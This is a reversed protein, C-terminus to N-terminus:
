QWAPRVGPRVPPLDARRRIRPKALEEVRTTVPPPRPTRPVQAYGKPKAPVPRAPAARYAPVPQRAAPRRRNLSTRMARQIKSVSATLDPKEKISAYARPAAHPVAQVRAPNAPPPAVRDMPRLAEMVPTPAAERRKRFSRQLKAVAADANVFATAAAVLDKQRKLTDAALYPEREPLEIEEKVRLLGEVHLCLTNNRISPRALPPPTAPPTPEYAFPEPSRARTPEDAPYNAEYCHGHRRDHKDHMRELPPRTNAVMTAVLNAPPERIALVDVLQEATPRKEPDRRLMWQVHGVLSEPYRKKLRSFDPKTNIIFRGLDGLGTAQSASWPSRFSMIEFMVCGLAWVDTPFSYDGRYQEPSMFQPSGAFTSTLDIGAALMKSLGFDALKLRGMRDVLINAPKIDRHVIRMDNHCYDLASALQVLYHGVQATDLNQGEKRCEALLDELTGGPVYEMLIFLKNQSLSSWSDYFSVINPHNKNETVRKMLKAERRARERDLASMKLLSVEKLCYAKDKTDTVKFAQGFAGEGLMEHYTFTTNKHMIVNKPHAPNSMTPM